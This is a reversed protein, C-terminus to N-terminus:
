EHVVVPLARDKQRFTCMSKDRPRLPSKWVAMSDITARNCFFVVTACACMLTGLWAAAVVLLHISEPADGSGGKGGM